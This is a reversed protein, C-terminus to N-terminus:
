AEGCFEAEVYVVVEYLALGVDGEEGVARWVV